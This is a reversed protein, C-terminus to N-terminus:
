SRGEEGSVFALHEGLLKRLRQHCRHDWSYITNVPRGFAAAIEVFSEGGMKRRLVERCRGGLRAAAAVYLDLRERASTIEEPNPDRSAVAELPDRDDDDGSPLPTEGLAQRRTGKRWFALRKKRLITVGLAVLEEPAEVHAYKTSLLLLTEQTLDEADAPSLGRRAASLIRARVKELVAEQDLPPDVVVMRAPSYGLGRFSLSRDLTLLGPPM